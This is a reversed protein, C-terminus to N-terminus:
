TCYWREPLIKMILTIRQVKTFFTRYAYGRGPLNEFLAGHTASFDFSECLVVEKRFTLICRQVSPLGKEACSFQTLRQLEDDVTVIVTYRTTLDKSSGVQM